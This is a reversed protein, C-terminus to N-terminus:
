KVLLMRKTESYDGAELRYFYTGSAMQRGAGDRGNWVVEYRGPKVVEGDILTRILRGSLDFVRLQVGQRVPIDFAITTQPNFPNPVNQYVAIEVSRQQPDDTVGTPSGQHEYAGMDVTGGGWFRANGLIDATVGVPVASNDGADIVPSFSWVTLPHAPSHVGKFGPDDDINGGGDTGMNPQWGGGSGGCGGILSNSITPMGNASNFVENGVESAVNGWLISNTMVPISEYDNFIAGGRGGASNDSFSINTLVPVNMYGTNYLGGGATGAINNYFVVDVLTANGGDNYFGGGFDASNGTFKVNIFEPDNYSNYMGGGTGATSNGEFVVNELRPDCHRDSWMGGGSIEAYNNVFILNALTPSSGARNLIGGGSGSDTGHGSEAFGGTITFGDLVFSRSLNRADVVHYCNDTPDGIIGIDGSLVTVNARPDRESRSSETGNFGGYIELGDMTMPFSISRITNSGPRYTGAAVWIENISSCTKAQSIADYLSPFAHEWSRGDGVGVAKRDVYLLGSPPCYTYVGHFVLVSTGALQRTVPNPTPTVWDAVAGWTLTYDGPQPDALNEYGVGDHVFGNPGVLHWSAGIDPQPDVVIASSFDSLYLKVIGGDFYSGNEVCYQLAGGDGIAVDGYGDGDVDGSAISRHASSFDDSGAIWDATGPTPNEGLGSPDGSTAPGGYWFYVRGWFGVGGPAGGDHWPDAVAIDGYGDGNIDGASAVVDGFHTSTAPDYPISWTYYDADRLGMSTMYGASIATWDPDNGIPIPGEFHDTTGGDGLQGYQNYGMAWLTGDARRALFHYYGAAIDVWDTDSGVMTPTAAGGTLAYPLGWIWLSGNSKLALNYYSGTGAEVKVWDNDTGVRYPALRPTTTGDGLQHGSNDGWAWLSGDSKLAVSHMVGGSAMLWNTDAGVLVPANRQDTSGDGVQGYDNGGWAWLTGDTRIALTHESGPYVNRWVSEPGVLVPASRFDTTGDGIQGHSNNGWGYLSGNSKLGFRASGDTAATVWDRDSGVQVPTPGAYYGWEWLSKDWKIAVADSFGLSVSTWTYGSNPMQVPTWQDQTSGDGLQGFNNQGWAMRDRNTTGLRVSVTPEDTPADKVQYIREPKGDGNVDGAFGTIDLYDQLLIPYPGSPSTASLHDFGFIVWADLPSSPAGRQVAFDDIGDGNLDGSSAVSTQFGDTDIPIITENTSLGSASGFVIRVEGYYGLVADDFGDDNVDATCV